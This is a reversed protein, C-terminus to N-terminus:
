GLLSSSRIGRAADCCKYRLGEFYERIALMFSLTAPTSIAFSNHNASDGFEFRLHHGTVSM